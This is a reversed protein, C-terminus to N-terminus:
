IMKLAEKVTVSSSLQVAKIGKEELSMKLNPGISGGSVFVDVGKEGMLHAVSYGAGGGIMFPNKIVEVLKEGEFILFFPARASVDSLFSDDSGGKSAVAVKM